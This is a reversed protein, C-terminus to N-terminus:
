DTPTELRGRGPGGKGQMGPSDLYNKSNLFPNTNYQIIYRPLIINHIKTTKFCKNEVCM